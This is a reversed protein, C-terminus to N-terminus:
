DVKPKSTPTQHKKKWWVVQTPQFPSEKCWSNVHFDGSKTGTSPNALNHRGVGEIPLDCIPKMCRAQQTMASFLEIMNWGLLYKIIMLLFCKSDASMCLNMSLMASLSSFSSLDIIWIDLSCLAEGSVTWKAKWREEFNCMTLKRPSPKTKDM